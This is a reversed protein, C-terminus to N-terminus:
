LHRTATRELMQFPALGFGTTSFFHLLGSNNWDVETRLENIGRKRMYGEVGDLLQHGLGTHQCEPDVGIVDLVAVRHDDGYEGNQLRAIAFGALEGDAEVAVAIFGNTDALAAELRKEFFIRRLRGGIRGDIDVVQDLDEPKLPRLAGATPPTM